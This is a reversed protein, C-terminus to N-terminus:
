KLLKQYFTMSKQQCGNVRYYQTLKVHQNIIFQSLMPLVLNYFASM